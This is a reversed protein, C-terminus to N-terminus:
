KLIEPVCVLVSKLKGKTHNKVKKVQKIKMM